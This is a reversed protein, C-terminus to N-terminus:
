QQKKKFILHFALSKTTTLVKYTYSKNQQQQQHKQKLYCFFFENM